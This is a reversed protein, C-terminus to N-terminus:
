RDGMAAVVKIDDPRLDHAGAPGGPRPTLQPCESISSATLAAANQLLAASALMLLSFFKGAM